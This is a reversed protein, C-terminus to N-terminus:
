TRAVEDDIWVRARRAFARYADAEPDSRDARTACGADLRDIAGSRDGTMGLLVPLQYDASASRPRDAVLALALVAPDALSMVWPRGYRDVAEVVAEVARPVDAISEVHEEYWASAPALYGVNTSVTPPIYAHPKQGRLQAVLAELPQYRVGVNPWIGLPAYKTSRGLALWGVFDDLNLTYLDGSRKRWGAGVLAVKAEASFAKIM